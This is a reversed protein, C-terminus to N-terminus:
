KEVEESFRFPYTYTGGQEAEAFELDELLPMMCRELEPSANDSLRVNDVYSRGMGPEIRLTIPFSDYELRQDPPHQYYCDALDHRLTQMTRGFGHSSVPQPTTAPVSPVPRATGAAPPAVPAAPGPTARVIGETTSPTADPTATAPVPPPPLTPGAPMEGIDTSPKPVLLLALGATAIAAIGIILNRTTNPSSM